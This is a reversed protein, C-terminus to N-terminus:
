AVFDSAFPCVAGFYVLIISNNLDAIRCHHGGTERLASRTCNVVHERLKWFGDRHCFFFVARKLSMWKQPTIEARQWSQRINPVVDDNIPADVISIVDFNSLKKAIWLCVINYTCWV